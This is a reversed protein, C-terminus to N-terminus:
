RRSSSHNAGYVGTSHRFVREFALPFFFSLDHINNEKISIGHCHPCYSDVGWIM